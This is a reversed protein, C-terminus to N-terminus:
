TPLQVVLQELVIFLFVFVGRLSISNHRSAVKGMCRNVYAYLM